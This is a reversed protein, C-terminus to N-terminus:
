EQREQPVYRRLADVITNDSGKCYNIKFFYEQIALIWRTLRFNTLPCKLIFSLAENDNHVNFHTGYLHYRFEKACLSCRSNIYHYVTTGKPIRHVTYVTFRERRSISKGPRSWVEVEHEKWGTTFYHRHMEVLLSSLVVNLGLLREVRECRMPTPFETTRKIKDSRIEEDSIIHGLFNM